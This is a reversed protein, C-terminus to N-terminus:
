KDKLAKKRAEIAAQNKKIENEYKEIEKNKDDISKQTRTRGKNEWTLLWSIAEQLKEIISRKGDIGTQWNKILDDSDEIGM